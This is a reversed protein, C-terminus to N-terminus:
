DIRYTLVPVTANRIVAAAVNDSTVSSLQARTELPMVIFTSDLERSRDLIIQNPKGFLLSHTVRVGDTRLDIAIQECIYQTDQYAHPLSLSHGMDVIHLIDLRAHFLRAANVAVSLSDPDCPLEFPVLIQMPRGPQILSAVAKPGRAFVPCPVSRLLSEATSGLTARDKPGHGYAGLMLLDAHEKDAVEAIVKAVGGAHVIERSPCGASEVQQHIGELTSHMYSDTHHIHRSESPAQAHAIVIEAGFLKSLAIADALALNASESFDHAVLITKIATLDERKEHIHPATQVTM